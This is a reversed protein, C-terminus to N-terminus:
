SRSPFPFPFRTLVAGSPTSSDGSAPTASCFSGFGHTPLVAADDPVWETLIRALGDHIQRLRQATELEPDTAVTGNALHRLRNGEAEIVGWGTVRLGPDFGIFRREGIM